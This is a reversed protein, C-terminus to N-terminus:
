LFDWFGRRTEVILEWRGAAGLGRHLDVRVIDHFFGVGAGASARSFWEEAREGGPLLLPARVAGATGHVRARIWPERLAASATAGGIAYHEGVLSRFDFGPVTGRGGFPYAQQRPRRATGTGGRLRLEVESVRWGLRQELRAEGQLRVYERALEGPAPADTAPHYDYRGAEASLSGGAARAAGYPADLRLTLSGAALDGDSIPWVPRFPGGVLSFGSELEASRQRELRAGADLAAGPGLRFRSQLRVGTAYHIDSFDHGAFLASLTNVAGSAAPEIGIERPANLYGALLPAGPLAPLSLRAEALPHMPGFAWGGHLALSATGGRSHSLGAGVALGEARNYRLAASASPIRLRTAPLGSLTQRRVLAMAQRRVENLEVAPGLGQERLEDFIGADFEFAEREARPAVTVPLGAFLHVPIPENFRYNGVRMTGRIVSGAPIDLEPIQRRIEVRQENPLWYRDMWLGNDLSISIQDLHRDVYSAPTFTFDLRVLDGARREVFVSGIFAPQSLDRPRVQLEYVRVPEPVGPLRLTLSDALRYQYHREAGPAAPHPVDRVEDGDGIRIEDGFNEMVVALHDIHYHINTPLSKQDRWGVIRQKTLDPARWMVDLAVQDTKILNREGTDRRDLYFYVYAQADARYTTLTTDLHAATRRAQARRILDLARADDWGGTAPQSSAPQAPLPPVAALLVALVPALRFIM